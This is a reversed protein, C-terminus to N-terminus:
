NGPVWSSLLMPSIPDFFDIGPLMEYKASNPRMLKTERDRFRSAKTRSHGAACNYGYREDHAAMQAVFWAEIYDLNKPGLAAYVGDLAPAFFFFADAGFIVSDRRLSMNFSNGGRLDSRHQTCRSRINSAQGIYRKGNIRNIICYIGARNPLQAVGDVRSFGFASDHPAPRVPLASSPPATIAPRKPDNLM